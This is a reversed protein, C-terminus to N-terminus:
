VKSRTGDICTQILLQTQQLDPSTLHPDRYYQLDRTMSRTRGHASTRLAGHSIPATLSKFSSAAIYFAQFTVYRRAVSQERRTYSNGDGRGSRATALGSVWAESISEAYSTGSEVSQNFM